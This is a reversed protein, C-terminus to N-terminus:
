PGAERADSRTTAAAGGVLRDAWDKRFILWMGGSGYPGVQMWYHTDPGSAEVPPETPPEALPETPPTRDACAAMLLALALAGVLRMTM